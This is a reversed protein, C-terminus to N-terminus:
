RSLWAHRFKEVPGEVLWALLASVLVVLALVSMFGYLEFSFRLEKLHFWRLGDPLLVVVAYACAWHMLYMPYSMRGAFVDLAKVVGEPRWHMLVSIVAALCPLSFLYAATVSVPNVWVISVALGIVGIVLMWGRSLGKNIIWDRWFWMVTGICYPLLAAPLFSYLLQSALTVEGNQVMGHAVGWIVPFLIVLFILAALAIWRSRALLLCSCFYMLIEVDVAWASPSLGQELRGIGFTTQGLIFVTGSWERLSAPWAFSTNVYEPSTSGNAILLLLATLLLCLWYTPYLRLARGMLFRSVGPADLGYRMNLIATMLMGSLMFFGWVAIGAVFEIGGIHTIVVMIAAALRYFGFM